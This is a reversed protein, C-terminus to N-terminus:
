HEYLALLRFPHPKKVKYGLSATLKQLEGPTFSRRISLLGDTRIFSHRFAPVMATGLYFFLYGPSSRRIDNALVYHRALQKLVELFSPIHLDSLHHLVHNTIVIDYSSNDHLLEEATESSFKINGSPQHNRNGAYHLARPDPDIATINMDINDKAAWKGLRVPIDGGGCGVDLLSIPSRRKRALPLIYQTYIRYWGTLLPNILSFHRYTLELRERDCGPTDMLEVLKSNRHKLPLPM